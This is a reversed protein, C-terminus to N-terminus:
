AKRRWETARPCTSFHSVYKPCQEEFLSPHEEGRYEAIVKGSPDQRLTINGGTVPMADVPMRKGNHTWTWIVPALCSSCEKVEMELSM